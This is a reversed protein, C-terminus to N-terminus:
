ATSYKKCLAKIRDLLKPVGTMSDEEGEYEASMYGKYGGQAFLQWVRDLDIPRHSDGFHDRIHTHTAYPVCAEIQAYHEDDSAALFNSIDLNVGAYPSSVRRLLELTTDAKQTIGGHDEVGLNIGKHGAYDCAPKMIEVSWDLGQAVTAGPPLEGAFIRLHSAGLQDTVDVWKKIDELVQHREAPDAQVMSSGCAAGSFAVGNKFALHRL